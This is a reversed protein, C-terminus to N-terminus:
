YYDLCQEQHPPQPTLEFMMNKQSFRETMNSFFIVHSYIFIDDTAM